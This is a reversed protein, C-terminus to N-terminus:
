KMLSNQHLYIQCLLHKELPFSAGGGSVMQQLMRSLAAQNAQNPATRGASPINSAPVGPFRHTQNSPNIVPQGLQPGLGLFPNLGPNRFTQNSPNFNAGL